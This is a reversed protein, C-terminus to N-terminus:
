LYKDRAKNVINQINTQVQVKATTQEMYGMLKMVRDWWQIKIKEPVNMSNMKDSAFNIMTGFTVGKKEGYIRAIERLKQGNDSAMHAVMDYKAKSLGYAKITSQTLNGYTSSTPETFLEVFKEFKPTIRYVKGEVMIENKKLKKPALEVDM